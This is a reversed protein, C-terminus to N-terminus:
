PRTADLEQAVRRLSEEVVKKIIAEGPWVYTRETHTGFLARERGDYKLTLRINGIVDWYLPTTNTNVGFELIDCVYQANAQVGQSQPRQALVRELTEKVLQRESPSFTINGMPVGFAAERTSSAVGPARLDNVTVSVPQQGPTSPAPQQSTVQVVVNSSACGVLVSTLIAFWVHKM